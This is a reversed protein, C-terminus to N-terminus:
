RPETPPKFPLSGAKRVWPPAGTMEARLVDKRAAHRVGMKAATELAPCHKKQLGQTVALCSALGLDLRSVALRSGGAGETQPSAM